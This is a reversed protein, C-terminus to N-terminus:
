AKIKEYRANSSKGKNSTTAKKSLDSITKKHNSLIARLNKQSIQRSINVSETTASNLELKSFSAGQKFLSFSSKTFPNKQGQFCWNSGTRSKM